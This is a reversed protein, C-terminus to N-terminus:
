TKKSVVRNKYGDVYFSAIVYYYFMAPIKKAKSDFYNLLYIFGDAIRRNLVLLFIRRKLRAILGKGYELQPFICQTAYSPHKNLLIPLSFCSYEFMRNAERRLTPSDFDVFTSNSVFYFPIGLSKIRCGLEEDECGYVRFQEDFYGTKELALRSIALADSAFYRYPLPGSPLGRAGLYRSDFFRAYASKTVTDTKCRVSGRVVKLEDDSFWDLIAGFADPTPVNDVDVFLLVDGVAKEIGSNRAKARGQNKEHRIFIVQGAEFCLRFENVTQELSQTSGDDVVILDFKSRALKQSLVGSFFKNLKEATGLIPVIVSLYM